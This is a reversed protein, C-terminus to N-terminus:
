SLREVRIKKQQVPITNAATANVTGNADRPLFELGLTLDIDESCNFGDFHVSRLKHFVQNANSYSHIFM